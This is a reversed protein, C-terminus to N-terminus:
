PKKLMVPQCFGKYAIVHLAFINCISYHTFKAVAIATHLIDIYSIGLYDICDKM